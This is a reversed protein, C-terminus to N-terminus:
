RPRDPAPGVRAPVPPCGPRPAVTVPSVAPVTTAPATTTTSSTTTTGAQRVLSHDKGSSCAASILALVVVAGVARFASWTQARAGNTGSQAGSKWVQLLTRASPAPHKRVPGH